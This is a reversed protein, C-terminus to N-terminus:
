SSSETFIDDSQSLPGPTSLDISQTGEYHDYEAYLMRAPFEEPGDLLEDLDTSTVMSRPVSVVTYASSARPKKQRQVKRSLLIVLYIVLGVIPLYILILQISATTTLYVNRILYSDIVGQSYLYNYGAISNILALNAFLFGDIINHARNQYPQFVAHVMLVFIYANGLSAYFGTITPIIAFLLLAIWRYLFYIGAFFRLNDKFSGQFSDLFPKLKSIPILRSVRGVVKSDSLKCFALVKNLSPYLILLAPPLTSVTMLCAIAPFAYPLHESSFSATDGHFFARSSVPSGNDGRIYGAVLINISVKTSQMYCLVIFASLGHIVSNKITTIRLYQGVTHGRYKLLLLTSLVLLLAYIITVYRFALVDMVTAGEWLCFSLPEINFFEISFIGYILQYGWSLISIIAPNQVSGSGNVVMSDILQSFLVVGNIRGSTFSINLALVAVFLITVPVLESLIYFFWGWECHQSRHCSYSPSHYFVSYGPKCSGCLIGTRTPGCIFEDLQSPSTIKPLPIKGEYKTDNYACFGIPCVGMFVENDFFGAWYGLKINAQFHKLDCSIIASYTNISCTCENGTLIFGPPCPLLTVNIAISNKRSTVTELLLVGSSNIDGRLEIINGSLCSFADDISVDDSSTNMVSARFITEIEQGIDDTVVVGLQREEGPILQFPTPETTNFFGGETAIQNETRSDFYFVQPWRFIMATNMRQNGSLVRENRPILSICSLVSSSFISHGYTGATNEIFHFSANWESGTVDYESYFLFCSRSAAFDHDDILYNYIAGGRDSAHNNTFNYTRGPGIHLASTGTMSIAGGQVGTNSLFRADCKTFNAIANVIVLASGTNGEFHAYGVFDVNFLSSFLAGSGFSQYFDLQRFAVSNNVFRCDKFVLTPLFGEQTRGRTHPSIDVAAGIHAVNGIWSCNDMLFTNSVSAEAVDSRSTFFSMGGGLEACNSTFIVDRLLFQNNQSKITYFSYGFHAGGGSGSRAGESCGNYEFTCLEITVNNHKSGDYFQIALGGGLYATNNHFYCDFVDVTNWSTNHWLIVDMGGGRGTGTFPRNFVNIFSYRGPISARNHEFTCGSVQFLSPDLEIGVRRGVYIGIGTGGYYRWMDAEPIRNNIFHSDSITVTGGLSGVIAIGTGHNDTANLDTICVDKCWNFHIVARLEYMINPDVFDNYMWVAGCGSFQISSITVNDLAVFVLGPPSESTETCTIVTGGPDRGKLHFSTSNELVVPGSLILSDSVIRITVEYITRNRLLAAELTPCPSLRSGCLTDNGTSTNGDVYLVDAQATGALFILLLCLMKEVEKWVWLTHVPEIYM